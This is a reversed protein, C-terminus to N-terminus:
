VVDRDLPSPVSVIAVIDLVVGDVVLGIVSVITPDSVEVDIIIIVEDGNGNGSITGTNSVVAALTEVDTSTIVGVVLVDSVLEVSIM